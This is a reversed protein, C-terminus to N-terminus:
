EFGINIVQLSPQQHGIDLLKTSNPLFYSTLTSTKEGTYLLFSIILLEFILFNILKPLIFFTIGIKPLSYENIPFTIGPSLLPFFSPNGVALM